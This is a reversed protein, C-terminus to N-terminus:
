TIGNPFICLFFDNGPFIYLSNNRRKLCIKILAKKFHSIITARLFLMIKQKCHCFASIQWTCDRIHCFYHSIPYTGNWRYSSLQDAFTHYIRRCMTLDIKCNWLEMQEQFANIRLQLDFLFLYTTYNSTHKIQKSKTGIRYWNQVLNNM